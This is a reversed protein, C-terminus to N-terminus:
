SEPNEENPPNESDEATPSDAEAAADDEDSLPQQETATRREQGEFPVQRRRRDPGFYDKARVFPRQAELVACIRHYILAATVPKALFATVGADRAEAINEPEAFASVLIVPVYRNPSKEGRVLKLFGLGHFASSWDLLIVDPTSSEFRQAAELLDGTDQIHVVGFARLVSRYLLRMVLHQEVILFRLNSIDFKKM